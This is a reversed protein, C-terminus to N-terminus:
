KVLRYVYLKGTMEGEYPFIQFSGLNSGINPWFGMFRYDAYYADACKVGVRSLIKRSKGSESSILMDIINTTTGSKPTKSIYRRDYPTSYAEDINSVVGNKVETSRLLGNVCYATSNFYGIMLGGNAVTNGTVSADGVIRYMIDADGDLHEVNFSSYDFGGMNWPSKLEMLLEWIGAGDSMM